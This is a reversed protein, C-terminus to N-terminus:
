DAITGGAEVLIEAQGPEVQGILAASLGAAQLAAALTRAETLPLSLLLGGSTQPDFLADQLPEAVGDTFRISGGFHDRNRYLGAPLWGGAALSLVGPLLPVAGVSLRVRVQSGSALEALHGLLGFGTIDTCAHVTQESAAEAARRNLTRMSEIAAAESSAPAAGGSMATAIIGTGIAKTLVLGDGPRAGANTLVRAPHVIGTVSLGYKVQTDEVTHGGVIVAGAEAVKAAGGRLIEGAQAVPLSAPSFTLLNMATLPRGGMAYVDSLANTAAIEGFLYPDSVIPTFFDITQVLALDDTLRYVGADDSTETGVLLNPDVQRPLSRL